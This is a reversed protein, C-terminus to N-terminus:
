ASSRGAGAGGARRGRLAPGLRERVLDVFVRVKPSLHRTGPYVVHLPVDAPSWEDLVRSLRGERVDLECRMAPLVGIGVGALVIRHLVELNNATARPTVRVEERRAGRHLVWRAGPPEGARAGASVLVDHGALDAPARPAGRRALYVPAAVLYRPLAGLRRAVLSTDSPAGFRLAVDFGEAVLDVVRDTCVVEVSAEPHDRLYEAVVGGIWGFHLPATIRLLGRPGDQMQTVTRDAEDLDAVIRACREYYAAGVDTVSLKRTTRRLLQAGLRAELESVKRSVTSKPMGLERAARTFSGAQVVRTFVAIENLDPLMSQGM